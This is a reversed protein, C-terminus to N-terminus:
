RDAIIEAILDDVQETDELSIGLRGLIFRPEGDPKDVPELSVFKYGEPVICTECLRTLMEYIADIKAAMQPITGRHSALNLWAFREYDFCCHRREPPLCLQVKLFLKEQRIEPHNRRLQSARVSLLEKEDATWEIGANM